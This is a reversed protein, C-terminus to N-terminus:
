VQPKKAKALRSAFALNKLYIERKPDLQVAKKLLNEAVAFDRREKIVVLALRNYLPAPQDTLEIARALVKIAGRFDGKRELEIAEQLSAKAGMGAPAAARFPKTRVSARDVGIDVGPVTTRVPEPAAPPPNIVLVARRELSHLVSQIEVTKLGVAKGLTEVDAVGDVLSVVYAEFTTLTYRKPDLKGIVTPRGLPNPLSSFAATPREEVEVGEEEEEEDGQMAGPPPPPPGPAKELKSDAPALLSFVLSPERPPLPDREVQAGDVVLECHPCM